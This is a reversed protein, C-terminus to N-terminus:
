NSGHHDQLYSFVFFFQIMNLVTIIGLQKEVLRSVIDGTYHWSFFLNHLGIGGNTGDNLCTDKTFTHCGEQKDSSTKRM